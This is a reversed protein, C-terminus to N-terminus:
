GSGGKEPCIVCHTYYGTTKILITLFSNRPKPQRFLSLFFSLIFYIAKRGGEGRGTGAEKVM